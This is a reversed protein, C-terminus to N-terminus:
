ALEIDGEGYKNIDLICQMVGDPSKSSWALMFMPFLLLYTEMFCFLVAYAKCSVKFWKLWNM